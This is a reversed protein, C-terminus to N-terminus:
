AVESFRAFERQRRALLGASVKFTRTASDKYKCWDTFHHELVPADRLITKHLTSARYAGVGVNYAFSVLADFQAQTFPRRPNATQNVCAAAYAADGRLWAEAQEPTCTMGEAVPQGKIFTTGYGITWVGGQDRYAVARFEEDGRLLALGKESITQLM